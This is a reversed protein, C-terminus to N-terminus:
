TDWAVLPQFYLQTVLLNRGLYLFYDLKSRLNSALTTLRRSLAHALGTILTRGRMTHAEIKAIIGALLSKITPNRYEGLQLRSAVQLIARELDNLITWYLRYRRARKIAREVISPTVKEPKLLNVALQLVQQGAELSPLQSKM